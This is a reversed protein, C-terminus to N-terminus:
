QSVAGLDTAVGGNLFGWRMYSWGYFLGCNGLSGYTNGEEYWSFRYLCADRNESKIFWNRDSGGDYISFRQAKDGACEAIKFRWGDDVICSGLQHAGLAYASRLMYAGDYPIVYWRQKINSGSCNKVTMNSNDSQITLCKNNGKQRVQVWKAVDSLQGPAPVFTGGAELIEQDSLSDIALSFHQNFAGIIENAIFGQAVTGPHLGDTASFKLTTALTGCKGHTNCAGIVDSGPTPMAVADNIDAKSGGEVTYSGIFLDGTDPNMQQPNKNFRWPDLTPLQRASSEAIIRANTENIRQLVIGQAVGAATGLPILGIMIKDVGADLMDDVSAFIKGILQNEFADWSADCFSQQKLERAAFDNSGIMLFVIDIDGNLIYPRIADIQQQMDHGGLGPSLATGSVRAFNYEYGRLRPEGYLNPDDTLPGFSVDDSRLLALQQVWNRAPFNTVMPVLPMIGDLLAALIESGFNGGSCDTTSSLAGMGFSETLSAMLGSPDYDGYYEASLSDGVVGINIPEANAEGAVGASVCLVVTSLPLKKFLVDMINRSM